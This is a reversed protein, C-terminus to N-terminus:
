SRRPGVLSVFTVRSWSPDGRSPARLGYASRDQTLRCAVLARTEDSKIDILPPTSAHALHCDVTGRAPAPQLHWHSRSRWRGSLVSPPLKQDPPPTPRGVDVSRFRESPLSGANGLQPSRSPSTDFWALSAQAQAPGPTSLPDCPTVGRDAGRRECPRHANTRRRIHRAPTM